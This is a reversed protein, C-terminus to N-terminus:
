GVAGALAKQLTVLPAVAKANPTYGNAQAAKKLLGTYKLAIEPAVEQGIESLFRAAADWRPGSFTAQAHVTSVVAAAVTFTLDPRSENHKFKAKGDVLELPDILDLTGNFNAFADGCVSGVNGTVMLRVFTQDSTMDAGAADAAALCKVANAWTRQSPYALQLDDTPPVNRMGDTRRHFMKVRSGWKPILTQWDAPVIPFTPPEWELTELGDLWAEDNSAWECHFFRNNMAMELPTGNPCFEAPNCAAAIVTDADLYVDGVHRETILTLLAARVSPSVATIEDLFLLGGPTLFAEVWAMPMLKCLKAKLDPVPLGGLDEPSCQSGILAVFRRGMAVALAALITSKGVGPMGRFLVPVRAQMAIIGHVNPDSFASAVM